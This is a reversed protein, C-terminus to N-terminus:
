DLLWEDLSIGGKEESEILKPLIAAIAGVCAAAVTEYSNLMAVIAIISLVAEGLLIAPRIKLKM